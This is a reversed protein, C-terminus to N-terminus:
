NQLDLVTLGIAGAGIILVIEGAQLAARRSIQVGISYPEATAALHFPMSAPIKHLRNIPAKLYDAFGGDVHAGIVQLNACCNYKGTRCPYCNGCALLPELVVRDGPQLDSSGNVEEIIGAIEHGHIRPYNKYPHEGKFFHVDSGCIGVAKVRVLAEGAAPIPQPRDEIRMDFPAYLVAAKM